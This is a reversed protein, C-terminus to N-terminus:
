DRPSRSGHDDFLLVFEIRGMTVFREFVFAAVDVPMSVPEPQVKFDFTVAIDTRQETIKVVPDLRPEFLLVVMPHEDISM